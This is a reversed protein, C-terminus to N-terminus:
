QKNQIVGAARDEIKYLVNIIPLTRAFKKKVSEDDYYSNGELHKIFGEGFKEYDVMIGLAPILNDTTTKFSMPNMYFTIDQIIKNSTNLMMYKWKKSEKDDDDMSASILLYASMLLLLTKFEYLQKRVNAMFLKKDKGLLKIGDFSSEGQFLLLKLFVKSLQTTGSIFGEKNVFNYLTRYTGEFDRELVGLESRPAFRAYVGDALWSLRYQSVLRGLAYRKIAPSTEKSMNGYLLQSVFKSKSIFTSMKRNGVLSEPRAGWDEDVGFEKENWSGDANFAEILSRERGTLDEVKQNHMMADLVGLRLIYDGESLWGMPSLASVNFGANNSDGGYHEPLLGYRMGLNYLKNNSRGSSNVTNKLSKTAHMIGNIAENPTFETRGAAHSMIQVIGSGINAVAPFPNYAFVKYAGFTILGDVIKSGVVNKGLNDLFKNYISSKYNFDEKTIDGNDHSFEMDDLIKVMNKYATKESEVTVLSPYEKVIKIVAAEQGFKSVLDNFKKIIVIAKAPDAVSIMKKTPDFVKKGSVAEKESSKNYLVNNLVHDILKKLNTLDNKNKVNKNSAAVDITGDARLVNEHMNEVMNKILLTYDEIASLHKHAIAMKSFEILSEELNDSKYDASIDKLYRVPIINRPNGNEDLYQLQMGNGSTISEILTESMSSPIGKMGNKLMSAMMGKKINPIFTGDIKTSAYGPLYALHKAFIDAYKNYFGLMTPNSKVNLDFRNDYNGLSNNNEDVRLPVETIYKSITNFTRLDDLSDGNNYVYNHYEIPSTNKLNEDIFVISEEADKGNAVNEKEEDILNNHLDKWNNYKEVAEEILLDSYNEDDTIEVLRAKVKKKGAETLCDEPNITYVNNKIASSKKKIEKLLLVDTNEAKSYKIKNIKEEFEQDLKEKFNYYTKSYRALMNGDWKGDDDISLLDKFSLGNDKLDKFLQRIENATGFFENTSRQSASSLFKHLLNVVPKGTYHGLGGLTKGGYSSIDSENSLNRDPIILDYLDKGINKIFSPIVKRHLYDFSTNYSKGQIALIGDLTKKDLTMKKEFFNGLNQWMSIASSAALLEEARPNKSYIISNIWSASKDYLESLNKITKNKFLNYLQSRLEHLNKEHNDLKKSLEAIRDIGEQSKGISKMENNVDSIRNELKSILSKLDDSRSKIKEAITGIASRLNVNIPSDTFFAYDDDFINDGYADRLDFGDDFIHDSIYDLPDEFELNLDDEYIPEENLTSENYVEENLDSYESSPDYDDIDNSENEVGMDPDEIIEEDEPKVNGESYKYSQNIFKEGFNINFNLLMLNSSNNLIMKENAVDNGLKYYHNEGNSLNYDDLERILQLATDKNISASIDFKKIIPSIINLYKKIGEEGNDTILKKLTSDQINNIECAM